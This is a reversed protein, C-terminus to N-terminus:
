RRRWNSAQPMWGLILVSLEVPFKAAYYLAGDGLEKEPSQRGPGPGMQLLSRSIGAGVRKDQGFVDFTAQKFFGNPDHLRSGVVWCGWDWRQIWSWLCASLMMCTPNNGLVVVRDELKWHHPHLRHDTVVAKALQRVWFAYSQFVGKDKLARRSFSTVIQM